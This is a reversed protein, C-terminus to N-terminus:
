NILEVLKAHAADRATYITGSLLIQDGTKLDKVTDETLPAEIRKEEM